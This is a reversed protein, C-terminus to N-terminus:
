DILLKVFTNFDKVITMKKANKGEEIVFQYM